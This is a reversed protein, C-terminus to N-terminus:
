GAEFIKVQKMQGFNHLLHTIPQIVDELSSVLMNCTTSVILIKFRCRGNENASRIVGADLLHLKCGFM